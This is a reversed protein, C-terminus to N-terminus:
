GKAILDMQWEAFSSEGSISRRKRGNGDFREIKSGAVFSGRRSVKRGVKRSTPGQMDGDPAGTKLEDSYALYRTSDDTDNSSISAGRSQKRGGHGDFHEIKSGAVFSAGRRARDSRTKQNSGSDDSLSYKRSGSNASNTHERSSETGSSISPRGMQQKGGSGDYREIKSGAVFSARRQAKGTPHGGNDTTSPGFNNMSVPSGIQPPPLSSENSMLELNENSNERSLPRPFPAVFGGRPTINTEESGVSTSRGRFIMKQNSPKRAFRGSATRALARTVIDATERGSTSNRLTKSKPVRLLFQVRADTQRIDFVLNDGAADELFVEEDVNLEQEYEKNIEPTIRALREPPLMPLPALSKSYDVLNMDESSATSKKDQPTKGDMESAGAPSSQGTELPLKALSSTEAHQKMRGQKMAHDSNLKRNRGRAVTPSMIKHEPVTSLDQSPYMRISEELHFSRASSNEQPDSGTTEPAEEDPERGENTIEEPQVFYLRCVEYFRSLRTTTKTCLPNKSVLVDKCKWLLSGRETEGQVDKGRIPANQFCSFFARGYRSKSYGERDESDEEHSDEDEGSQFGAEIDLRQKSRVPGQRRHLGDVM